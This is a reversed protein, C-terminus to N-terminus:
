FKLTSIDQYKKTVQNTSTYIYFVEYGQGGGANIHVSLFFDAGGLMQKTQGHRYPPYTDGTRSM